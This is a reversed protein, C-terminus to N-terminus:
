AVLDPNRRFGFVEFFFHSHSSLVQFHLANVYDGLRLHLEGMSQCAPLRDKLLLCDSSIQYDIRIWRLAECYEGKNKLIDGIVNAWRAEEKRNGLEKASKYAKKASTLEADKKGM